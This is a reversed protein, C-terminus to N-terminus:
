ESHVGKLIVNILEIENRVKGIISDILQSEMTINMLEMLYSQSEEKYQKLELIMEISPKIEDNYMLSMIEIFIFGEETMNDDYYDLDKSIVKKQFRPVGNILEMIKTEEM